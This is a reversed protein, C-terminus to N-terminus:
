IREIEFALEELPLLKSIVAVAGLDRLERVRDPGAFGTLAVIRTGPFGALTETWLSGIEDTWPDVDWFVIEGGAASEGAQMMGTQRLLEVWTKALMPDTSVVRM